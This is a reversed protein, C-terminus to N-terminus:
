GTGCGDEDRDDDERGDVGDEGEAIAGADACGAATGDGDVGRVCLLEILLPM